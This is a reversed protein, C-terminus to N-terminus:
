RLLETVIEGASVGRERALSALRRAAENPLYIRVLRLGRAALQQQHKLRALRRRDRLPIPSKPRGMKGTPNKRRRAYWWKRWLPNEVGVHLLPKPVIPFAPM